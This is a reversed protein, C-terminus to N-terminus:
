LGFGYVHHLECRSEPLYSGSRTRNTLVLDRNEQGLRVAGKHIATETGRPNKVVTSLGHTQKLLSQFGDFVSNSGTIPLIQLVDRLCSSPLSPMPIAGSLSRVLSTLDAVSILPSATGKAQSLM